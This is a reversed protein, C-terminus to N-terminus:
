MRKYISIVARMGIVSRMSVFFHSGLTIRLVDERGGAGWRLLPLRVERRLERGRGVRSGGRWGGRSVRSRGAVAMVAAGAEM